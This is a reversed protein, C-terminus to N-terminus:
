GADEEDPYVCVLHRRLCFGCTPRRNDCRTKRLRCKECATVGRPKPFPVQGGGNQRTTTPSNRSTMSAPWRHHHHNHHPNFIDPLVSSALILYSNLFGVAFSTSCPLPARPGNLHTPSGGRGALSVLLAVLSALCPKWWGYSRRGLSSFRACQEFWEEDDCTPGLWTILSVELPHVRVTTPWM